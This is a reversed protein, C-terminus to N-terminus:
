ITAPMLIDSVRLLPRTAVMDRVVQVLEDPLQQIKKKREERDFITGAQSDRSFVDEVRSWDYDAIGCFEFFKKLVPEPTATLDEFRAACAPVGADMLKLYGEMCTIWALMRIQIPSMPEGENLYERLIPLTNSWSTEMKRRLDRDNLDLNEPWGKFIARMWSVGERYLFFHNARGFVEGMLDALVLVESRMKIAVTDAPLGIRPKCRWRVSSALLGRLIEDSSGACRFNVMQTLDDPESLSHVSPVAELVKSLLTSGCRGVSHVFLLGQPPEPIERAVRHFIPLPMSVLGVANKAQAQYYFPARDVAAPDSCEVFLAVDSQLDFCYLSFGPNALVEHPSIEERPETRFDTPKVVWVPHARNVEKIELRRTDM